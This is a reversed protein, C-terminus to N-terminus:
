RLMVYVQHKTQEAKVHMAFFPIMIGIILLFKKM